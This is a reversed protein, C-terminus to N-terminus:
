MCRILKLRKMEQCSKPEQTTGQLTVLITQHAHANSTERINHRSLATERARSRARALARTIQSMHAQAVALTTQATTVRGHGLFTVPVVALSTLHIPQHGQAIIPALVIELQTGLIIRRSTGHTTAQITVLSTVASMPIASSLRAKALIIQRSTERSIVQITELLTGLMTVLSIARLSVQMTQYVHGNLTAHIIQQTYAQAHEQLILQGHANSTPLRTGLIIQQTHVQERERQLANSTLLRTAHIIQQTHV